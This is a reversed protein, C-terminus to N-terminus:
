DFRSLKKLHLLVAIFKFSFFKKISLSLVIISFNVFSLWVTFSVDGSRGSFVTLMASTSAASAGSGFVAFSTVASHRTM